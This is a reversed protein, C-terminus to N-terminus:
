EIFKHKKKNQLKKLHTKEKTKRKKFLENQPPFL